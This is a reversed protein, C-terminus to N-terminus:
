MATRMVMPQAILWLSQFSFLLMALLMPLQSLTAARPTDFLAFAAKHAILIGYIHGILILAVQLVWGVELPLVAHIAMEATGFLNWGWGFPDSAIRMLKMGEYFIHQLNHALHYFLAIPLLSYAFRIFLTRTEHQREGAAIRMLVCIGYYILLPLLIMGAMGISFSVIQSGGTVREITAVLNDWAPTMSLGHFASMSLMTVALYAEDARAKSGELLDAGWARLNWSVNEEPCSKVCQMCLTCYTNADMVGIYQHTPCPDGKHNGHYCDHSRCSRCVDPDTRRLESSAFMSYLGSVRGVLCAYQCFAKREFVLVTAVSLGVMGLALVATLWPKQTVGYGLELWTLFLFLFTAPWINRLSRPWRLGLGFPKGSRRVLGLRAVWDAIAMWPCATCWLKGVFLIIFALCTWWFTWTLAPALNREPAPNGLLGTAVILAFAAVLPLQLALPFWRHQLGHRLGPIQLLDWRRGKRSAGSRQRRGWIEFLVFSLILISISTTYFVWGPVGPMRPSEAADTVGGGVVAGVEGDVPKEPALLVLDMGCTPCHGPEQERVTECMPCGWSPETSASQAPEDEPGHALIPPCLAIVLVALLLTHANNRGSRM